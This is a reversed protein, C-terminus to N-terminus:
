YKKNLIWVSVKSPVFQDHQHSISVSYHIAVAEKDDGSTKGEKLREHLAQVDEKNDRLLAITHSLIDKVAFFQERVARESGAFNIILTKGVTGCVARFIKIVISGFDSLFPLVLKRMFFVSHQM